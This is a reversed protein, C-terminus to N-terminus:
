GELIYIYYFVKTQYFTKSVSPLRENQSYKRRRRKGGEFQKHSWKSYKKCAIEILKTHIGFCKIFYSYIFLIHKGEKVRRM